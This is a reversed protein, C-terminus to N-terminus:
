ARLTALWGALAGVGGGLAAFIVGEFAAGGAPLLSTGALRGAASLVGTLALALVTTLAALALIRRTPVLEFGAMVPPAGAILLPALHFTSDSVVALLVWLASLGLGTLGASRLGQEM